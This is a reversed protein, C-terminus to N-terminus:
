KKKSKFCCSTTDSSYRRQENEVTLKSTKETIEELLQVNALSKVTTNSGISDSNQDLKSANVYNTIKKQLELPFNGEIRDIISKNQYFLFTPLVSVGQIAAVDDCDSVNVKLFICSDANENALREFEPSIIKCPACWTAHFDVIMLSM